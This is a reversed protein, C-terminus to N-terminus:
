LTEVECLPLYIGAALNKLHHEWTKRLRLTTGASRKLVAIHRDSPFAPSIKQSTIINITDREPINNDIIRPLKISVMHIFGNYVMKLLNSNVCNVM